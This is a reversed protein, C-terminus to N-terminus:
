PRGGAMTAPPDDGAAVSMYASWGCGACAVHLHEVIWTADAPVPVLDAHPERCVGLIELAIGCAPCPAERDFPLIVATM